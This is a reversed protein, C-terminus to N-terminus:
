EQPANAAGLSKSIKEELFVAAKVGAFITNLIECSSTNDLRSVVLNPPAEQGGIRKQNLLDDRKKKRLQLAQLVFFFKSLPKCTLVYM